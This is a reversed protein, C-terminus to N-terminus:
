RQFSRVRSRGFGVRNSLFGQAMGNSIFEPYRPNPRGGELLSPSDQAAAWRRAAARARGRIDEASHAAAWKVVRHQAAWSIPFLVRDRRVAPAREHRAHGSSRCLTM